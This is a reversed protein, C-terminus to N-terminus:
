ASAYFATIRTCTGNSVRKNKEPKKDMLIKLKLFKSNNINDASTKQKSKISSTILNKPCWTEFCNKKRKLQTWVLGIFFWSFTSFYFGFCCLLFSFLWHVFLFTAKRKALWNCLNAHCIHYKKVSAFLLESPPPASYSLASSSPNHSIFLFLAHLQMAAIISKRTHEYFVASYVM